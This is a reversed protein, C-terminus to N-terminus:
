SDKWVPESIPELLMEARIKLSRCDASFVKDASFAAWLTVNAPIYEASPLSNARTNVLRPVRPHRRNGKKKRAVPLTHRRFCFHRAREHWRRGPCALLCRRYGTQNSPSPYGGGAFLTLMAAITKNAHRTAASSTEATMRLDTASGM